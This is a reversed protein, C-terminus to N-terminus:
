KMGTSIRATIFAKTGTIGIDEPPWTYFRGSAANKHM